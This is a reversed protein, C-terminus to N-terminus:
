WFIYKGTNKNLDQPHITPIEQKKHGDPIIVIPTQKEDVHGANPIGIFKSEYM